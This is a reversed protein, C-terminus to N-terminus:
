IPADPVDPLNVVGLFVFGREEDSLSLRSADAHGLSGTTEENDFDDIIPAHASATASPATTRCSRAIKPVAIAVAM